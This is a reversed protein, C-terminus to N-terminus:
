TMKIIDGKEGLILLKKSIKGSANGDGFVMTSLRMKEQREDDDLFSLFERRIRERDSGVICLNGLEICEKRETNERLLFVPVGLYASEEQIGGSDTFIAFARSLLHHFERMPFPECIKINKINKFVDYVVERVKPNPHAPLVGFLDDRANLIDRIGLMSARMKKGLNERRHTTILVLKRAGIEDFIPMSIEHSLSYKLADIVTNGVTFVSKKGENLLNQTAKETPSFHIDSLADIAVRNFEEPYPSHSDYSRLGAEIHAVKIGLYFASLSACFATTTDGHVLVLDPNQERFLVDFFELLCVTMESLNQGTKMGMFAFDPSIKFEDFVSLAMEKHQGSFCIKVDFQEIKQLEIALPLMKIAEPRTGIVIFIRM